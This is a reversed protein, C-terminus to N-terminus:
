KEPIDLITGYSNFCHSALANAGGGSKLYSNIIKGDKRALDPYKLNIYGLVLGKSTSAHIYTVTDDEDIDIVIGAHTLKKTDSTTRDFMIIDGVNPLVGSYIKKYKSLTAYITKVGGSDLIAQKEFVAINSTWYVAAVYGSCDFNFTKKEKSNPHTLQAKENYKYHKNLYFNAWKKIDERVQAKQKDTIEVGSEKLQKQYEKDYGYTQAFSISSLLTIFLILVAIYFRM